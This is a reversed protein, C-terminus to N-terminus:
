WGQATNAMPSGYGLAPFSHEKTEPELDAGRALPFQTLVPSKPPPGFSVSPYQVKGMWQPQCSIKRGGCRSGYWGHRGRGMQSGLWVCFEERRSLVVVVVVVFCM